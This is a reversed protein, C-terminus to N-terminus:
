LLFFPVFDFHNEYGKKISSEVKKLDCLPLNDDTTDSTQADESLLLFIIM